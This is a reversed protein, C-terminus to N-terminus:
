PGGNETCHRICARRRANEEPASAGFNAPTAHIVSPYIPACGLGVVVLGACAFIVIYLVASTAFCMWFVTSFDREGAESSQVLSTNLGSQVIVNGVNVFVIIIALAGFDDPTLLRAMVIQVVLSVLSNGGRELLKWFMGSITRKKLTEGEM